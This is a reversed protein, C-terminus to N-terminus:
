GQNAKEITQLIGSHILEKDFPKVIWSTAGADKGKQKMESSWETSLVMIPTSMYDLQNRIEKIFTIGDMNPMNIDTIIFDFEDEAEECVRLADVGDDASQINLYGLEFLASEVMDRITQSDDIFLIRISRDYDM